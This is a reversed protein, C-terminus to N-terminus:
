ISEELVEQLLVFGGAAYGAAAGCGFRRVVAVRLQHMSRTRQLLVPVAAPLRGSWLVMRLLPLVRSRVGRVGSPGHQPTSLLQRGRM